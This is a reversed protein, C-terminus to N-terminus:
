KAAPPSVSRSPEIAERALDLARLAQGRDALPEAGREVPEHVGSGDLIQERARPETVRQVRHERIHRDTRPRRGLREVEEAPGPVLRRGVAEEPEADEARDRGGHGAQGLHRVDHGPLVPREARQVSDQWQRDRITGLLARQQSELMGRQGVAPQSDRPAPGPRVDTVQTVMAEVLDISMVQANDRIFYVRKGDASFQPSTESVGATKTLQRATGARLDVLWLDGDRSIVRTRGDASRPGDELLPGPGTAVVFRIPKTPYNQASALSAFLTALVAIAIRM